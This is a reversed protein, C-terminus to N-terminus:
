TDVYKMYLPMLIDGVLFERIFKDFGYEYSILNGFDHSDKIFSFYSFLSQANNLDLGYDQFPDSIIWCNKQGFLM